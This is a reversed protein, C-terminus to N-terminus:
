VGTLIAYDDTAREFTDAYRISQMVEDAGADLPDPNSSEGILIYDGTDALGYESWITNKVVRESGIDGVRKSLGGQYECMIILPESFGLPDGAESIGLSKWITAKATYSWNAVSSM